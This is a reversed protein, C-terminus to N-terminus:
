TKTGWVADDDQDNTGEHEKNVKEYAGGFGKKIIVKIANVNQEVWGTARQVM